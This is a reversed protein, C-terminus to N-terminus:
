MLWHDLICSVRGSCLLSWLIPPCLYNRVFCFGRFIALLNSFCLACFIVRSVFSGFIELFQWTPSSLLYGMPPCLYNHTFCFKQFNGINRAFCFKRFVGFFQRTPPSLLYGVLRLVAFHCFLFNHFPTSSM